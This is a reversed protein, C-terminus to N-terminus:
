GALGDRYTMPLLELLQGDPDRIMVAAGVNTQELVSGGLEVAKAATADIDDVSVSIHTLGMENMVRPSAPAHAGADAYYMLELVFADQRLYVATVGIPPELDILKSVMADPPELERWYDFGLVEEYFRRSRAMDTVCVGVHNFVPSM